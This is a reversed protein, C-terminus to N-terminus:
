SVEYPCSTIVGGLTTNFFNILHAMGVKDNQDVTSKAVECLDFKKFDIVTRYNQSTQSKYMWKAQVKNAFFCKYKLIETLNKRKYYVNKCMVKTNWKSAAPQDPRIYFDM